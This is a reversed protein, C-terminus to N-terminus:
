PEKRGEQQCDGRCVQCGPQGADSGNLRACGSRIPRGRLILGVAMALASLTFVLFTVALLQM